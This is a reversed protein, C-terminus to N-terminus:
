PRPGKLAALLDSDALGRFVGTNHGTPLDLGLMLPRVRGMLVLLAAYEEGYHEQLERRIRKAVAPSSGATSVAISLDGRSVTAPVIFTSKEPQDAINCLIGRDACLDAIRGNVARSSTCAIALFVGDLDQESFERCSFSVPPRSLIEKTEADPDRSDIVRM